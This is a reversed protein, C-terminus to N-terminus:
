MGKAIVFERKWMDKVRKVDVMDKGIVLKDDVYLLLYLLSGGLM